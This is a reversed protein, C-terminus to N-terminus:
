FDKEKASRKTNARSAKRVFEDAMFSVAVVPCNPYALGLSPRLRLDILLSGKIKTDEWIVVDTRQDVPEGYHEKLQAYLIEFQTRPHSANTRDACGERALYIRVQELRGTNGAGFNLLTFVVPLKGYTLSISAASCAEGGTLDNAECDPVFVGGGTKEQEELISFAEAKTIGLKLGKVGDSLDAAHVSSFAFFALIAQACLLFPNKLNM